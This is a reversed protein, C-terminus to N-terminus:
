SRIKHVSCIDLNQVKNMLIACRNQTYCFYTMYKEKNVILNLILFVRNHLNVKFFAFNTLLVCILKYKVDISFVINTELYKM